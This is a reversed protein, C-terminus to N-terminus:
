ARVQLLMLGELCVHIARTSAKRCSSSSADAFM